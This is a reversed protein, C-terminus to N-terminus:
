SFVPEERSASQLAVNKARCLLAALSVTLEFGYTFDLEANIQAGISVRPRFIPGVAGIGPIKFVKNTKLRQRITGFM